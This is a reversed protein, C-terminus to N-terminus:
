PCPKPQMIELSSLRGKVVFDNYDLTLARSIGNEYLEFGISYDPTQEGAQPAKKREFYSIIVPWHALAALKPESAAADDHQREGLAIEHGIVTLTDFTKEGNESGDYVPFDLTSTSTRAAAIVRVMHESPFVIGPDLKFSKNVPKTLTVATAAIGHEAVGDVSTVLKNDIFNESTFKFSKADAAEWTKSRLDSQSASGEGTDLESVQRFELTYGSCASGGFNYVIRGRVAAIQSNGRAEGLSLDYIARHPVLVIPSQQARAALLPALLILAGAFVAGRVAFAYDLAM